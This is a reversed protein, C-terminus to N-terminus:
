KNAVQEIIMIMQKIAALVDNRRLSQGEDQAHRMMTIITPRDELPQIYNLLSNAPILPLIGPACGYTSHTAHQVTQVFPDRLSTLMPYSAYLMRAQIDAFGQTSLHQQLRAFLEYPDQGPVLHFDVYARAQNPLAKSFPANLAEPETGGVMYHITCTPTMWHAFHAQFGGLGLLLHPIHWRQALSQTTDPFTHLLEILKDEPSVLTDYFGEIRVEERADKLSHLAWLLRWAANPAIAAYTLPLTTSTTQAELEVCLCGKAGTALLPTEADYICMGAAAEQTTDWLYGDARLWNDDVKVLDKLRAYGKEGIGDLLWKIRIPTTGPVQQYTELVALRVLIPILEWLDLRSLTYRNYLLLTPQAVTGSESYIFPLEHTPQRPILGQRQLQQTIWQNVETAAAYQLSSVEAFLRPWAELYSDLHEDVYNFLRDLIPSVM